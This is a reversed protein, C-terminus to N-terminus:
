TARTRLHYDFADVELNNGGLGGGAEDRREARNVRVALRQAHGRECLLLEFVVGLYTGERTCEDTQFNVRTQQPTITERM